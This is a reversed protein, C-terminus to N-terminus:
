DNKADEYKSGCVPCVMMHSGSGLAPLIVVGSAPKKESSKDVVRGECREIIHKITSAQAATAKVTGDAIGLVVDDLKRALKCWDKETKAKKAKTVIEEPFPKQEGVQPMLEDSGETTGGQEAVFRLLDEDDLEFEQSLVAFVAKWDGRVSAPGAVYLAAARRKTDLEKGLKAM